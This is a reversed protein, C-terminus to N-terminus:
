DGPMGPEAFNMVTERVFQEVQSEDLELDALTFGGAGVDERLKQALMKVLANDGIPLPPLKGSVWENLFNVGRATM